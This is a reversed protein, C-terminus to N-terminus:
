RQRLIDAAKRMLKSRDFASTERWIKFGKDAAELALDLDAKRAHAIKGIIEDTAPDSVAATEGAIADRWEGAIFLQVDPYTHM